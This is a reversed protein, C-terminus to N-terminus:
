TSARIRDIESRMKELFRVGSYRGFICLNWATQTSKSRLVFSMSRSLLWASLSGSMTILAIVSNLVFQLGWFGDQFALWIQFSYVVVIGCFLFLLGVSGRGSEQIELFPLDLADFKGSTFRSRLLRRETLLFNGYRFLVKEDEELKPLTM